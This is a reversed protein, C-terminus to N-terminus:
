RPDNLPIKLLPVLRSAILEVVPVSVANGALAYLKSDSLSPLVFSEPFGQFRFCERPTLKRKGKADIVLPVNHGGHGMNATLTPCENSKNERIYVRRYQYVTDTKMEMPGVLEWAKTADTYYYKDAVNDDLMASIPRKDVTPFDLTFTDYVDKSRLGVIYIRERHQPVGTIDSTNLVKYKVHYGRSELEHLITKFTNTDDHTTLNKVNELVVCAPKHYDLISLIKYFVNSRPDQFGERRGAVSFPQCPFGGTLIDHPPISEPAIDCLNACTLSHDPFNADYVVKSSELMDNSFVTRVGEHGFAYSFAGTGAFLDVHKM